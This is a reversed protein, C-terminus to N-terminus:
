RLAHLCDLKSPSLFTVGQLAHSFAEWLLTLITLMGIAIFILLCMHAAIAELCATVHVPESFRTFM